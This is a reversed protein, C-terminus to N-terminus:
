TMNIWQNLRRPIDGWFFVKGIFLNIMIGHMVIFYGIELLYIHLSQVDKSFHQLQTSCLLRVFQSKKMNYHM